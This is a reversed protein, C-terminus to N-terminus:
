VLDRGSPCMGASRSVPQGPLEGPPHHRGDRPLLSGPPIERTVTQHNELEATVWYTVPLLQKELPSDGASKGRSDPDRSIFIKAGSPNTKVILVTSVSSAPASEAAPQPSEVVAPPTYQEAEANGGLPCLRPRAAEKCLERPRGPARGPGGQTPDLREQAGSGLEGGAFRSITAYGDGLPSVSVMVLWAAGRERARGLLCEDDCPENRRGVPYLYWRTPTTRCSPSCGGYLM